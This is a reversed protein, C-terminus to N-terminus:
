KSRYMTKGHGFMTQNFKSGNTETAIGFDTIVPM